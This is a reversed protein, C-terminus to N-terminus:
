RASLAFGLAPRPSEPHRRTNIATMLASPGRRPLWGPLWEPSRSGAGPPCIRVLAHSDSWAVSRDPRRQVGSLYSRILLNPTRTGGLAGLEIAM